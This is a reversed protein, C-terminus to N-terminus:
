NANVLICDYFFVCLSTGFFFTERTWNSGGIFTLRGVFRGFIRGDGSKDAIALHLWAKVM